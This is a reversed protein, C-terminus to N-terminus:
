EPTKSSSSGFLNGYCALFRFVNGMLIGIEFRVDPLMPIHRCEQYM